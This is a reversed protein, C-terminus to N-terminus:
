AWVAAVGLRSAASPELDPETEEAERRAAEFFSHVLDDSAMVDLTRCCHACTAVHQEVRSQTETALQQLLYSRLEKQSFCIM